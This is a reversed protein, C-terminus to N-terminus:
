FKLDWILTMVGGIDRIELNEEGKQYKKLFQKHM